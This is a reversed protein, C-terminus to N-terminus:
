VPQAAGPALGAFQRPAGSEQRPRTTRARARAAARLQKMVESRLIVESRLTSKWNVFPIGQNSEDNQLGEPALIPQMKRFAAPLGIVLGESNALAGKNQQLGAGDTASSPPLARTSPRVPSGCALEIAGREKTPPVQPTM